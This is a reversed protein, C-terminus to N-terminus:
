IHLRRVLEELTSDGRSHVTLVFLAITVLMNIVAVIPNTIIGMYYFIIPLLSAFSLSFLYM